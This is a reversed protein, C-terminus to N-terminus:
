ENHKIANSLIVSAFEAFIRLLEEDERSFGKQNGLKNICQLVGLVKTGELIPCVLLSKTKYDLKKDIASNFRPDLYANRINVM